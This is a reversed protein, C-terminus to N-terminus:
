LAGLIIRWFSLKAAAEDTILALLQGEKNYMTRTDASGVAAIVEQLSLPRSTTDGAICSREIKLLRNDVFSYQSFKTHVLQKQGNTETFDDKKVFCNNSLFIISDTSFYRAFFGRGSRSLISMSDNPTDVKYLSSVVIKKRNGTSIYHVKDKLILISVTAKRRKATQTYVIKGFFSIDTVYTRKFKERNEIISESSTCSVLLCLLCSTVVCKM